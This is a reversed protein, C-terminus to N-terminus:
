APTLALLLSVQSQVREPLNELFRWIIEHRDARSVGSFDPDVIRVRISASNQRYIEVQAHPHQCEYNSLADFVHKISSDSRGRPIKIPM